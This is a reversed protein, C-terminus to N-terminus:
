RSRWVQLKLGTCAKNTGNFSTEIGTPAALEPPIFGLPANQDPLLEYTAGSRGEVLWHPNDPSGSTPRSILVSHGSFKLRIWTVDVDVGDVTCMMSRTGVGIFDERLKKTSETLVQQVEGNVTWAGAGGPQLGLRIVPGPLPQSPKCHKRAWGCCGTATVLAALLVLLMLLRKRM